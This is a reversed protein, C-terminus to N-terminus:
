AAGGRALRWLRAWETIVTEPDDGGVVGDGNEVVCEEVFGGEAVYGDVGVGDEDGGFDEAVGVGVAGDVGGVEGGEEVVEARVVAAHVLLLKSPEEM